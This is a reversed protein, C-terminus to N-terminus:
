VRENLLRVKQNSMRGNTGLSWDNVQGGIPVGNYMIRPLKKGKVKLKPVNKVFPLAALLGMFGRRDM